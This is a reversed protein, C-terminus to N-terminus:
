GSPGAVLGPIEAFNANLLNGNFVKKAGETQTKKSLHSGTDKQEEDIGCNGDKRAAVKGLLNCSKTTSFGLLPVSLNHDPQPRRQNTTIAKIQQCNKSRTLETTDQQYDIHSKQFNKQM